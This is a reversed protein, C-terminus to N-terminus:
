GIGGGNEHNIIKTVKVQKLQLKKTTLKQEEVITSSDKKSIMKVVLENCEKIKRANGQSSLDQITKIKQGLLNFEAASLTITQNFCFDESNKNVLQLTIYTRKSSCM